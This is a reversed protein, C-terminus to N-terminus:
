ARLSHGSRFSLPFEVDNSEILKRNGGYASYGRSFARALKHTVAPFYSNLIYDREDGHFKFDDRPLSPKTPSALRGYGEGIVGQMPYLILLPLAHSNHHSHIICLDKLNGSKSLSRSKASTSDPWVCHQLTEPKCSTELLLRKGRPSTVLCTVGVQWDRKHM